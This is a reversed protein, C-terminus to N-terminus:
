EAHHGERTTINRHWVDQERAYARVADSCHRTQARIADFSHGHERAVTVFGARLSHASFGAGGLGVRLALRKVARDVARDSCANERIIEDNRIERFLPGTSSGVAKIWTGLARVPCLARESSAGILNAIADFGVAVLEHHEGLQNAKSTPVRVVVGRESFTLNEVRMNALEERRFAGAWGLLILARDRVDRAEDNLLPTVMKRLHDVRMPPAQRQLPHRGERQAEALSRRLGQFASLPPSSRDLGIGIERYAVVLSEFAREITGVGYAGPARPQVTGAAMARLHAIVLAGCAEARV